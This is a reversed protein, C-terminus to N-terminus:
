DDHRILPLRLEPIHARVQWFNFADDAESLNKGPFPTLLSDSCNANGKYADDGVIYYDTQNIPHTHDQLAEGLLSYNLATSDHTSGCTKTSCWTIHRRSDCVAQFNM